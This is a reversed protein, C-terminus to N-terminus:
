HSPIGENVQKAEPAQPAQIVHFCRVVSEPEQIYFRQGM